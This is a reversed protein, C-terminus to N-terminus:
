NRQCLLRSEIAISDILFRKSCSMSEAQRRRATGTMASQDYFFVNKGRRSAQKWDYGTLSRCDVCYTRWTTFLWALLGSGWPPTLTVTTSDTGTRIVWIDSMLSDCLGVSLICLCTYLSVFVLANYNSVTWDESRVGVAHAGPRPLCCNFSWRPVCLTQLTCVRYMRPLGADWGVNWAAM